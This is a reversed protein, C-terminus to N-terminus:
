QGDLGLPNTLGELGPIQIEPAGSDATGETSEDEPQKILESRVKLLTDVTWKSVWFVKGALGSEAEMKEKLKAVQEAHEKDLREKDEDSEEEPAVRTEAIEATIGVRVPYEEDENPSGLEM